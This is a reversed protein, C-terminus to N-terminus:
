FHRLLAQEIIEERTLQCPKAEAQVLDLTYIYLIPFYGSVWSFCEDIKQQDIGHNGLYIFGTSSLGADVFAAVRERDHLRGNLFPEFDVLPIDPIPSISAMFLLKDLVKYLRSVSTDSICILLLDNPELHAKCSLRPESIM